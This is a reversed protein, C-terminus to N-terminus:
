EDAEDDRADRALGVRERKRRALHLLLLEIRVALEIADLTAERTM